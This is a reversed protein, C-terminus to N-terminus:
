YQSVGPRENGMVLVVLKLRVATLFERCFGKVGKGVRTKFTKLAQFSKVTKIGVKIGGERSVGKLLLFSLNVGDMDRDVDLVEQIGSFYFSSGPHVQITDYNIRYVELQEGSPSYLLKGHQELPHTMDACLLKFYDEILPHAKIELEVGKGTRVISLQLWSEGAKTINLDEM